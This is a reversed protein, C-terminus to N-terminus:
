IITLGAEPGNNLIEAIKAMGRKVDEATKKGGVCIRVAHPAAGRGVMFTESTLLSIGQRAAEAQFDSARWPSPLELWLHLADPPIRATFEKLAEHALTTRKRTEARQLAILEDGTGDMIWRRAIEAMLPATMWNNIRINSRLATIKTDPALIYGVRLGGAMCKSLSCIYFSREPAYVSIPPLHNDLLEGWIDDELIYLDHRRAVEAIAKRREIPMTVTTPNQLTPMLYVARAATHRCVKDLEDPIMGFEDMAVGQLQFGLQNALHITGPYTLTDSLIIDGPRAVTLMSQMIGQQAGNTLAICDATAKLGSRTIWRAGAELHEPFGTEPQYEMLVGLSGSSSIESLTEALLKGADASTPTALSFDLSNQGSTGASVFIGTPSAPACPGLVYTGRGVEGGVLGRRTAEQYARTITGLTVGLDYALDRQPPLKDGAALEGDSIAEGVLDAIALYKPGSRGSIDPTWITMTVIYDNYRYITLQISVIM